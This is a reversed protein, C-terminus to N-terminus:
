GADTLKLFDVPNGLTNGDRINGPTENAYECLAQLMCDCAKVKQHYYVTTYLMVKSFFIQEAPVYSRLALHIRRDKPNEYIALTYFLREIDIPLSLGSYYSDRPIYDMKDADLPGSIIQALYAREDTPNGIIWNAVRKLDIRIPYSANIYTEFWKRFAKSTVILYSLIEGAGCDVFLKNEERLKKIEPHNQYVDESAHSLFGHGCDHLLAAMRLEALDGKYPDEDTTIRKKIRGDKVAQNLARVYRSVLTMVGLTHELRSHTASPYTLFCLGMQKIHRLRQILPSDIVAIEHEYFLNTGLVAGHIAKVQKVLEPEYSGLLDNVWDNIRDKIDM